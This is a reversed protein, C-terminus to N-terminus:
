GEGLNGRLLEARLTASGKSAVLEGPLVGAIIETNKDDKAGLRVTRIHFVKPTGAKLFNKDRVFVVHCDGEWHVAANPVVVAQPEERLLVRGAGFTNARLHGEPNALVARAKVTRTKHDAETSVWTLAGTVEEKDGDPRFLVKQGLRVRRIDEQRLDLTLWMQRADVVVFLAKAAEVVEGVVVDRAVVVGEFPATLPLLNGTTTKPDLSDALGKPLGLFRLREALQDEPVRDLTEAQVPLGLNTLAQQATHLRIRAESLAAETERISREPVAGATGGRQLAEVTGRKLRTQVFAHLFEAKARGVEAADVLAIVEGERVRDGVGKLARFVNGPVRASLRATRTQDYTIEGNATLSEVVPAKWVPEVEIGAKEVAEPSTFQIRREHAKCKSNNEPREALDLARRAQALDDATVRTRAPTQALEPHELPCEHVGHEKCWGYGKPRPMLDPNCEVCASEPVGHEGCWDDKVGAAGDTLSSFSPM